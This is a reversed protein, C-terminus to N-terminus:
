KQYLHNELKKRDNEDIVIACYAGEHFFNAGFLRVAAFMVYSQVFSNGNKALAYYFIEDVERRTLANPCRYLYDHLIAPEIINSRSPALIPWLVRPISALDTIFHKPIIVNDNDVRMISVQCTKFTYEEYPQICASGYFEIVHKPQPACAQLLLMTSIALFERMAM